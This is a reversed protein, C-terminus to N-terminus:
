IMSLFVCIYHLAFLTCDSTYIIKALNCANRVCLTPQVTTLVSSIPKYVGGGGGGGCFM